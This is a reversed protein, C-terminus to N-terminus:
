KGKGEALKAYNWTYDDDEDLATWSTAGNVWASVKGNKYGAFYRKYWHEQEVNKVLIPTDVEVKSWDVEAEEYEEDLWLVQFLACHTCSIDRCHERKLIIPRIFDGCFNDGNYNKIEEAYKERNKM